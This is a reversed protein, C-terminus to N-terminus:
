LTSIGGRLPPRSGSDQDAKPACRLASAANVGAWVLSVAPPFCVRFEVVSFSVSEVGFAATSNWERNSSSQGGCSATYEDTTGGPQPHAVQSTHFGVWEM